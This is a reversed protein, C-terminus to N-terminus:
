QWGSWTPARRPRTTPRGAELMRGESLIVIREAMCVTSFVHSIVVAMRGAMLQEVWVFVEYESGADLAPTPEDLIMVQAQRLYARALAVKQWAARPWLGVEALALTRSCAM